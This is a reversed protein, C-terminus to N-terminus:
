LIQFSLIELSVKVVKLLMTQFKTLKNSLTLKGDFGSCVLFAASGIETVSNPIVLDGVLKENGAFALVGIVTVSKPIRLEGKLQKKYFAQLPIQTIPADFEMVCKGDVVRNSLM